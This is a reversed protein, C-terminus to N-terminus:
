ESDTEDSEVIRAFVMGNMEDTHAAEVGMRYGESKNRSFIHNKTIYDSYGQEYNGKNLYAVEQERRLRAVTDPNVVKDAQCTPCQNAFGKHDPKLEFKEGCISCLRIPKM